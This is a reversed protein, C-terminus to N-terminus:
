PVLTQPPGPEEARPPEEQRPDDGVGLGAVEDLPAGAVLRTRRSVPVVTLRLLTRVQEPTLEDFRLLTVIPPVWPVEVSEPDDLRWFTQWAQLHPIGARLTEGDEDVERVFRDGAYLMNGRSSWTVVGQVWSLARPSSGTGGALHQLWLADRAMIVSSQVYLRLLPQEAFSAAAAADARLEFADDCLLTCRFMTLSRPAATGITHFQIAVPATFLTDACRLGGGLPNWDIIGVGGTLWSREVQVLRSNEVTICATSPDDSPVRLVCRKMRLEGGDLRLLTVGATAADGGVAEVRLDRLELPARVVMLCPNGSRAGDSADSAQTGSGDGAVRQPNSRADVHWRLTPRDGPRARLTIPKDVVIPTVAVPDDGAIELVEDPLLTELAEAFDAYAVQQGEHTIRVFRATRATTDGTPSATAPDGTAASHAAADAPRTAASAAGRDGPTVTDPRLDPGVPRRSLWWATVGALLVLASLAGLFARRRIGRGAPVPWTLRSWPREGSRVAAGGAPTRESDCAHVAGESGSRADAAAFEETVERVISEPRPAPCMTPSEFTAPTSADQERVSLLAQVLEEASQFREAPDPQLLKKIIPVLSAPIFRFHEDNALWRGDLLESVLDSTSGAKRRPRGGAMVYMLRGLSYLDSREDVRDGMAQEPSMYEPTGMVAGDLTLSPGHEPRALGFDALKPRRTSREILINSPKIDRHIVNCAHSAQLGRAIQLSFFLIEETTLPGRRILLDRLTGGDVYEMVMYPLHNVEDVSFVTVVNPHNISAVARAERVFRRRFTESIGLNAALMKIAVRRHLKLDFGAFVVGMGGRGLISDVRYHELYGLCRGQPDPTLFGLEEGSSEADVDFEERPPQSPEGFGQKLDRIAAELRAQDEPSMKPEPPPVVKAGALQELRARCAACHELHAMVVREREQSLSHNLLQKLAAEAVCPTKVTM